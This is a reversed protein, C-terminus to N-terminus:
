EDLETDPETWAIVATPLTVYMWVATPIVVEVLGRASVDPTWSSESLPGATLMQLLFLTMLVVSGLIQYATRHANDRVATQREDLDTDAKNAIKQTSPLLLLEHILVTSVIGALAILLWWAGVTSIAVVPYSFIGAYEALVVARRQRRSFRRAKEGIM